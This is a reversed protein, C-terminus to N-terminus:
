QNVQCQVMFHQGVIVTMSGRCRRLSGRFTLLLYLTGLRGVAELVACCSTVNNYLTTAIACLHMGMEM